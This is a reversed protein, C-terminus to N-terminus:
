GLNTDLLVLVVLIALAIGISLKFIGRMSKKTEIWSWRGTQHRVAMAELGMLIVFVASLIAGFIVFFMLILLLTPIIALLVDM